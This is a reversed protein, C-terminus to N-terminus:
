IGRTVFSKNAFLCKKRFEEYSQICKRGGSENTSCSRSNIFKVPTQLANGVAAQTELCFPPVVLYIIKKDNAATTGNPGHTVRRLEDGEKAPLLRHYSRQFFFM